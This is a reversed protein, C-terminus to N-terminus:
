KAPAVAPGVDMGDYFVGYREAVAYFEQDRDDLSAPTHTEVKEVHLVLKDQQANIGVTGYGKGNLEAALQELKKRDQGDFFYGWLLPGDVKWPANKRMNSFM